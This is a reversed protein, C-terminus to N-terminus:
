VGLYHKLTEWESVHKFDRGVEHRYNILAVAKMDEESLDGQGRSPPDTIAEEWAECLAIDEVDTWSSSAM